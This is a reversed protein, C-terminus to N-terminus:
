ITLEQGVVRAIREFVGDWDGPTTQRFIRM